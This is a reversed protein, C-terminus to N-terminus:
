ETENRPTLATEQHEVDQVFWPYGFYLAPSMSTLINRQRWCPKSLWYTHDVSSLLVMNILASWHSFCHGSWEYRNSRRRWIFGRGLGRKRLIAPWQSGEAGCLQRIWCQHRKRGQSFAWKKCFLYKAWASNSHQESGFLFSRKHLLLHVCWIRSNTKSSFEFQDNLHAKTTFVPLINEHSLWTMQPNPHM